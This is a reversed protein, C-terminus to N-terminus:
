ASNDCGDTRPVRVAVSRSMTSRSSMRPIVIVVDPIPDRDVAYIIGRININLLRRTAIM